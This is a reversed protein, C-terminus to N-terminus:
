LEGGGNPKDDNQLRFAAKKPRRQHRQLEEQRQQKQQVAEDEAADVDDADFSQSAISAARESALRDAQSAGEGQAASVVMSALKTKENRGNEMQAEYHQLRTVFVIGVFPRPQGEALSM